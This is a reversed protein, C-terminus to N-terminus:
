GEQTFTGSLSPASESLDIRDFENREHKSFSEKVGDPQFGQFIDLSLYPDASYNSFEKRDVYLVKDMLNSSRSGTDSTLHSVYSTLHSVNSSYNNQPCSNSSNSSSSDDKKACSIITLSIFTSQFLFLIKKM